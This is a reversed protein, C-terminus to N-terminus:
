HQRPREDLFDHARTLDEPQGYFQRCGDCLPALTEFDFKFALVTAQRIKFSMPSHNGSLASSRPRHYRHGVMITAARRLQEALALTPPM